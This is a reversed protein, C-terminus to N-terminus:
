VGPANLYSVRSFDRQFGPDRLQEANLMGDDLAAHMKDAEGLKRRRDRVCAAKADNRSERLARRFLECQFDGAAAVHRVLREAYVDGEQRGHRRWIIWAEDFGDDFAADLDDLGRAIIWLLVQRGELAGADLHDM